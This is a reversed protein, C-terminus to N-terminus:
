RTADLRARLAQLEREVERLRADLAEVPSAERILAPRTRILQPPVRQWREVSIASTARGAEELAVAHAAPLIVRVKRAPREIRQVVIADAGHAVDFAAKPVRRVVTGGLVLGFTAVDIADTGIASDTPNPARDPSGTDVAIDDLAGAADALALAVAAAPADSGAGADSIGAAANLAAADSGASTDAPSAAANIAPTDTGAATDPGDITAPISVADSGAASDSVPVPTGGTDVIAQDTGSASDSAAIAVAAAASDSGAGSDSIGQAAALAAADSGASTDSPSAAVAISTADTGAGSDAAAASAAISASDTGAASDAVPVAVNGSSTIVANPDERRFYRGLSYPGRGPRARRADEVPDVIVPPVVVPPPSFAPYDPRKYAGKSYPGRGPRNRRPSPEGYVSPTGGTAAKFGVAIILANASGTWTWTATTAGASTQAGSAASMEVAGTTDRVVLTANTATPTNVATTTGSTDVFGVVITDGAATTTFSSTTGTTAPVSVFVSGPTSPDLPSTTDIGSEEGAIIGVYLTSAGFNATAGTTSGGTANKVYYLQANQSNPGDQIPTGIATATQGNITVSSPATNPSGWTVLAWLLNGATVNAAFASTSRSNSATALAGADTKQVFAM